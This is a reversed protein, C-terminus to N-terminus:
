LKYFNLQIDLNIVHQEQNIFATICIDDNMKVRQQMKRKQPFTSFLLHYFHACIQVFLVVQGGTELGCILL